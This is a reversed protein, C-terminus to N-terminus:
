IKDNRGKLMYKITKQFFGYIALPIMLIYYTGNFAFYAVSALVFFEGLLQFLSKQEWPTDWGLKNGPGFAWILLLFFSAVFLLISLIPALLIFSLTVGVAISGALLAIEPKAGSIIAAYYGGIFIVALFVVRGLKRRRNKAVSKEAIKEEKLAEAM